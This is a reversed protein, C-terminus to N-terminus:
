CERTHKSYVDSASGGDCPGPVDFSVGNEPMDLACRPRRACTLRRRDPAPIVNRPAHRRSAGRSRDSGAARLAAPDTAGPKLRPIPPGSSCQAAFRRLFCRRARFRAGAPTFASWREQAAERREFPAPGRVWPQLRPSGIRRRKAAFKRPLPMRHNRPPFSAMSTLRGAARRAVPGFATVRRSSGHFRIDNPSAFCWPLSRRGAARLAAPDTAGPKLRPIPPGLSWRAAFRRLFCRRVCFRSGAPTTASSRERAAERREFPGACANLSIRRPVHSAIIPPHDAM